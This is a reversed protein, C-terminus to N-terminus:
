DSVSAPTQAAEAAERIVTLLEDVVGPTNLAGEEVVVPEKRTVTWKSPSAASATAIREIWGEVAEDSIGISPLPYRPFSVSGGAWVWVISKPRDAVQVKLSARAGTGTELQESRMWKLLSGHAFRGSAETGCRGNLSGHSDGQCRQPRVLGVV